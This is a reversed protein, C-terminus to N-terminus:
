YKVTEPSKSLYNDERITVGFNHIKKVYVIIQLLHFLEKTYHVLFRIMGM